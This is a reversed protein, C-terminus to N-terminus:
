LSSSPRQDPMLAQVAPATDIAAIMGDGLWRGLWDGALALGDTEGHREVVLACLAGFTMGNAVHALAAAEAADLTRFRPTFGNRWVALMAPRPLRAAALPTSGGNIASWIAAANTTAQELRFTPVLRLMANDWDIGSLAEASVATADVAVFIEALARELRALEIVEVDNPYIRALTEPFDRAYADLTWSGPPVHDIHTAASAEFAADGIWARVTQYTEALCAMLQSRYTNLYVSLGNPSGLRAAADASEERLWARFDRQLDRLSM